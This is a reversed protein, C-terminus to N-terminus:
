RSWCSRSTRARTPTTARRCRPTRRSCRTRGRMHAVADDLTEGPADLAAFAAHGENLHIVDEPDIGLAGLARMGGVGLLAYQNLRVEPSGVYLQSTTWRAFASNEPREADLLLLPVRGVDVRWIQAVIEEDHTPVTVTVPEGDEGRILAAPLREPDTDLWYERQWGTLDIRQRFYGQRYLLGIAM